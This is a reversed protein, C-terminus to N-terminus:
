KESCSIDRDGLVFSLLMTLLGQQEESQKM